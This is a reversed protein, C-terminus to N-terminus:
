DNSDEAEKDEADDEAEQALLYVADQARSIRMRAANESLGLAIHAPPGEGMEHLVHCRLANGLGVPLKDALGLLWKMRGMEDQNPAVPADWDELPLMEPARKLKRAPADALSKVLETLPPCISKRGEETERLECLKVLTTQELDDHHRAVGRWNSRLERRSLRRFEAIFLVEISPKRALFGACLEAETESTTKAREV